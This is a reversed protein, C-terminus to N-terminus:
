MYVNVIQTVDNVADSALQFDGTLGADAASLGRYQVVM